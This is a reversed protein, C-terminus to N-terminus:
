AALGVNYATPAPLRKALASFVVSMSAPVLLPACRVGDPPNGDPLQHQYAPCEEVGDIQRGVPVVRAEGVASVEAPDGGSPSGDDCRVLRQEDAQQDDELRRDAHQDEEATTSGLEPVDLRDPEM